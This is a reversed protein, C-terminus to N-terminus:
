QFIRFPNKYTTFISQRIILFYFIFAGIVNDSEILWNYTIFINVQENIEKSYPYSEHHIDNNKNLSSSRELSEEYNALSIINTQLLILSFVVNILLPCRQIYKLPFSILIFEWNVFSQMMFTKDPSFIIFLSCIICIISSSTSLYVKYYALINDEQSHSPINSTVSLLAHHFCPFIILKHYRKHFIIKKLFIHNLSSFYKLKM